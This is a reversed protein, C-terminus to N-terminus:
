FYEEPIDIDIDHLPRDAGYINAALGGAIQFNINLKKLINVIWHLASKTDKNKLTILDKRLFFMSSNKDFGKREIEVTFGLKIYFGLAEFDMTNVAIFYM